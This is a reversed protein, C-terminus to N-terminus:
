RNIRILGSKTIRLMMAQRPALVTIIAQGDVKPQTRISVRGKKIGVETTVAQLPHYLELNLDEIARRLIAIRNRAVVPQYPVLEAHLLRITDEVEAVLKQTPTQKPRIPPMM